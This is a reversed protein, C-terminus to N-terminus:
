WRILIIRSRCLARRRTQGRDHGDTQPVAKGYVAISCRGLGGWAWAVAGLPCSSTGAAPFSFGREERRPWLSTRGKAYKPGGQPIRPPIPPSDLEGQQSGDCM